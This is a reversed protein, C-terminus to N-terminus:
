VYPAAEFLALMNENSIYYEEVSMMYLHDPIMVIIVNGNEDIKMAHLYKKESNINVEIKKTKGTELEIGFIYNDVHEGNGTCNHHYYVYEQSSSKYINSIGTETLKLWFQEDEAAPSVGNEDICYIHAKGSYDIFSLYNGIVSTILVQTGDLVAELAQANVTKKLYGDADYEYLYFKYRRDENKRGVAYIKGDVACVSELLTGESNQSEEFNTYRERILEKHEGTEVNYKTVVSVSAAEKTGRNVGECYSYIFETENLKNCYIFPIGIELTKLVKIKKNEADTLILKNVYIKGDKEGFNLWEYYYKENMIVGVGAAVVWAGLGDPYPIETFTNKETDIYTYTTPGSNESNEGFVGSGCFGNWGVSTAKGIPNDIDFVLKAQKETLQPIVGQGESNRSQEQTKDAESTKPACGSFAFALLVALTFVFIKKRM